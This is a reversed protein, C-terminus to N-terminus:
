LPAPDDPLRDLDIQVEFYHANRIRGTNVILLAPLPGERDCGAVRLGDILHEACIGLWVDAHRPLRGANM